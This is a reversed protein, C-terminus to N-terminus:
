FAADIYYKKIFYNDYGLLYTINKRNDHKQQFGTGGNKHYEECAIENKKRSPSKKKKDMLRLKEFFHYGAAYVENKAGPQSGVKNKLTENPVAKYKLFNTYGKIGVGLHKSIATKTLGSNKMFARLKTQVESVTDFIPSYNNYPFEKVKAFLDDSKAKKSAAESAMEQRKRKYSKPNNKKEWADKRRREEFFRAACLYTPNRYGEHTKKMKMFRNYSSSSIEITKLFATQNMEGTTLFRTIEGRVANCTKQKKGKMPIWEGNYLDDDTPEYVKDATNSNKKSEANQLCNSPTNEM